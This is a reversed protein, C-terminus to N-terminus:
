GNNWANWEEEKLLFYADYLDRHHHYYRVGARIADESLHWERTTEALDGNTRRWTGLVAWLHAGHDVFRANHRGPEDPDQEIFRETDLDHDPALRELNSQTAM